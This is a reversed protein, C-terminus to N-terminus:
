HNQPVRVPPVSSEHCTVVKWVGDMRRFVFTAGANAVAEQEGTKLTADARYGWAVVATNRDLIRVEERFTTLRFASCTMLYAVNSGVYAQYDHMSGDTGMMVFDPSNWFVSFAQEMNLTECGSVLTNIAEKLEREIAKQESNSLREEVM